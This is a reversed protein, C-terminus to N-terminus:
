RAPIALSGRGHMGATPPRRQPRQPRQRWRRRWAMLPLEVLYYSVLACSLVLMINVPLVNFFAHAQPNLFPQQWLYLSYSITGIFAVPRWNLLAGVPTARMRTCAEMLVTVAVLVLPAGFLNVLTYGDFTDVVVVPVLLLALAPSGTFRVYPQWALLRPRLLAMLCGAAIADAVAPFVPLDRYKSNSIMVHMLARVLPAAVFMALAPTVARRASLRVFLLPWLLYFQEEVSLSWLHGLTWSPAVQYNTTYTLAHVVDSNTLSFWGLHGGILVGTLFLLLPPVIRLARRVYFATLDTTGTRAREDLLLTTILFGSIVFFVIVGFHAVRSFLQARGDVVTGSRGFLHGIMVLVISLARLGDLSAIRGGSDGQPQEGTRSPTGM